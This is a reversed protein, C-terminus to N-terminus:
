GAILSAIVAFALAPSLFFVAYVFSIGVFKVGTRVWGQGYFFKLSLYFYLSLVIWAIWAVWGGSLVQALIAAGILMVFAFSHVTLSFVLHDVYLYEKRKARYFLMLLLAFLPLLVFLIRPIWTTLPGNLAAPDAELKTLMNTLGMLAWNRDEQAKQTENTLEDLARKVDPPMAHQVDSRRKFFQLSTTVNNDTTQGDAKEHPIVVAVRPDVLSMKGAADSKLGDVIGSKGNVTKIVHGAADHSYKVSTVHLSLQVFALGTASLFLFFLLTVFLYLRVAPVYPQTRGERFATPLEGPRFLLARSTRLIRSDFSVIDKVFEHLLHRVSRRHTNLPQGCVACFPGILPKKCNACSPAKEGRQALAAAAAEVAAAAGTELIAGLDEV